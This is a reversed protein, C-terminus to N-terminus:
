LADLVRVRPWRKAIRKNEVRRRYQEDTVRRPNRRCILGFLDELGCPAVVEISDDALLRIGIATATEPWTAVADASSSLPEVEVGFVKPYWLHVAAQNTVDWCIDPALAVVERQVCRERDSDLSCPDFFALDVDKSAAPRAFGHLHDWVRDRIVGSGILWDPPDITRAARLARMLMSSSRILEILRWELEDLRERRDPETSLLPIM